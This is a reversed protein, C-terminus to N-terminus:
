KTLNTRIYHTAGGIQIEIWGDDTAGATGADVFELNATAFNWETPSGPANTGFGVNGEFFNIVGSGNQYVGYNNTAATQDELFIGYYNTVSGGGDNVASRIQFDVINTIAGSGNNSSRLDVNRINLTGSDAMAAFLRFSTLFGGSPTHTTDYTPGLFLATPFQNGSTSSPSWTQEIRGAQHNTSSTYTEDLHFKATPSNHGIAVFDQGADIFLLNADSNGEIITDSDVGDDNITLSTTANIALTGAGDIEEGSAVFISGWREGSAGLDPKNGGSGAVKKSAGDLLVDNHFTVDGGADAEAAVAGFDSEWIQYVKNNSGSSGSAQQFAVPETGEVFLVNVTDNNNYVVGPVTVAPVYNGDRPDQIIIRNTLGPSANAVTVGTVISTRESQGGLRAVDGLMAEMRAIHEENPM